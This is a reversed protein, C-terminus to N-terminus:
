QPADSNKAIEIASSRAAAQELEAVRQELLAIRQESLAMRQASSAGITLAEQAASNQVAAQQLQTVQHSSEAQTSSVTATHTERQDMTMSDAVSQGDTTHHAVNSTSHVTGTDDEERKISGAADNAPPTVLNPAQTHRNAM